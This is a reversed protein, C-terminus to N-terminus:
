ALKEMIEKRELMMSQEELNKKKQDELELLAKMRQAEILDQEERLRRAMEEQQKRLEEEL